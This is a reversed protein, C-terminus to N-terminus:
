ADVTTARLDSIRADAARVAGIAFTDIGSPTAVIDINVAGGDGAVNGATVGDDAGVVNVEEDARGQEFSRCQM